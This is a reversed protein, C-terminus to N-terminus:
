TQNGPINVARRGKKRISSEEEKEPIQTSGVDVALLALPLRRKRELPWQSFRSPPSRLRTNELWRRGYLM